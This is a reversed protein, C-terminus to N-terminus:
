RVWEKTSGWDIEVEQYSFSPGPRCWSCICLISQVHVVARQSDKTSLKEEEVSKVEQQKKLIRSIWHGVEAPLSPLPTLNRKFYLLNNSWFCTLPHAQVPFLCKIQINQSAQFGRPQLQLMHLFPYAKYALDFLSFVGFLVLSCRGTKQYM